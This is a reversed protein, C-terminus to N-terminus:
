NATILTWEVIHKFVRGTAADFASVIDRMNGSNQVIGVHEFSKSGIIIRRPQQVIKVNIRVRVRTIRTGEEDIEAQFERLETKLNYDSRLGISQRGVALIKETNEFSEILLTQIMKPARETWRADALYKLETSRPRLAVRSTDLGGAAIPEEIVLQWDVKPLDSSFTSKPTLNYLDPAPGSIGLLNCGTLLLLLPIVLPWYGINNRGIKYNLACTNM